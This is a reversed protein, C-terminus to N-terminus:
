FMARVDSASSGDPPTFVALGGVHMPHERSEGDFLLALTALAIVWLVSNRHQTGAWPSVPTSM